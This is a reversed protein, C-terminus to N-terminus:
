ENGSRRLDVVKLRLWLCCRSIKQCPGRLKRVIWNGPMRLCSDPQRIEGFTDALDAKIQLRVTKKQKDTLVDQADSFKLAAHGDHDTRVVYDIVCLAKGSQPPHVGKVDYPLARIDEARAAVVGIFPGKNAPEIVHKQFDSYSTHDARAVSLEGKKLQASDFANANLRSGNRPHQDFVALVIMEDPLVPGHGHWFGRYHQTTLEDVCASPM